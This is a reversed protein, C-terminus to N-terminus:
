PITVYTNKAKSIEIVAPTFSGAGPARTGASVGAVSATGDPEKYEKGNFVFVFEPKDGTSLLGTHPYTHGAGVASSLTMTYRGTGDDALTLESWGWASTKVSVKSRDWIGSPSLANTDITLQLDIAGFKMLAMGAAQLDATAGSPVLFVGNPGAPWIWGNGFNLQYTQDIMGYEYTDTGSAPPTVFVVTGFKHDGATSGEPEHGGQSFSGDDYLPAWPGAWVPDKVVM